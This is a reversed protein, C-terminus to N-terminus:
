SSRRDTPLRWPDPVTGRTPCDVCASTCSVAEAPEFRSCRLVVLVEGDRAVYGGIEERLGTEPCTVLLSDM